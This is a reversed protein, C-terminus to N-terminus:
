ITAKVYFVDFVVVGRLTPGAVLPNSFIWIYYAFMEVLV